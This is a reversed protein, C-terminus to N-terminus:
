ASDAPHETRGNKDGIHDYFRTWDFGFQSALRKAVRVSIPGGREIKTYTSREIGALTAMEEHTRDGRIDSLWRRIM